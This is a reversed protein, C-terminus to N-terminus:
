AARRARQLREAAPAAPNRAYDGYLVVFGDAELDEVREVYVAAAEHLGLKRVCDHFQRRNGTVIYVRM